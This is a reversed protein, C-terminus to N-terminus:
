DRCHPRTPFRLADLSTCHRSQLQETRSQPARLQVHVDIERADLVLREDGGDAGFGSWSTASAPAVLRGREAASSVGALSSGGPQVSEGGRRVAPRLHIRAAFKMAEIYSADIALQGNVRRVLVDSRELPISHEEALAM